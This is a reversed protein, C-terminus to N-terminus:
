GGCCGTGNSRWPHWLNLRMRPGNPRTVSAKSPACAYAMTSTLSCRAGCRTPYVESISSPQLFEKVSAKMFLPRLTSNSPPCFCLAQGDAHAPHDWWAKLFTRSWRSNRVIITGTNALTLDQAGTADYSLVMDASSVRPDSLVDHVVDTDARLIAADAGETASLWDHLISIKGFRPDLMGHATDLSELRHGREPESLEGEVVFRHGFKQAHAANIAVTFQAYDRICKTVQTVYLVQSEASTAKSLESRKGDTAVSCGMLADWGPQVACCNLLRNSRRESNESTTDTAISAGGSLL